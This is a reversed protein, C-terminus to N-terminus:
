KVDEAALGALRILEEADRKGVLQIRIGYGYAAYYNEDYEAFILQRVDSGKWMFVASFAPISDPLTDAFGEARARRLAYYFDWLAGETGTVAVETSVGNVTLHISDFDNFDESFVCRDYLQDVSLGSIRDPVDPKVAYIIDMGEIYVYKEDNRGGMLFSAIEGDFTLEAKVATERPILREIEDEEPKYSVCSEYSMGAVASILEKVTDLDASEGAITWAGDKQLLEMVGTGNTFVAKQVQSPQVDTVATRVAMEKLGHSFINILGDDVAYIGGAFSMYVVDSTDNKDGLACVFDSDASKAQITVVPADLGYKAADGNIKASAEVRRIANEMDRLYATNLPFDVDGAYSWGEDTKIFGLEEGNYTYKLEKLSETEFLIEPESPKEATLAKIAFYGGALLAVAAACCILLIAKKSMKKKEQIGM